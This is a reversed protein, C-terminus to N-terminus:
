SLQATTCPAISSALSGITVFEYNLAALKRLNEKFVTFSHSLLPHHLRSTALEVPHTATIVYDTTVKAVSDLLVDTKFSPNIMRLMKIEDSPSKIAVTSIPIELIRYCPNGALRYDSISPQYAGQLTVSWDRISRDFHYKPRPIASSDYKYGLEDVIRMTQNTHFGWGMRVGSLGFSRGKLPSRYLEESIIDENVCQIWQNAKLEYSHFHFAIEHGMSRLWNLDNHYQRFLYENAGFIKGMHDDLRLFWTTKVYDLEILIEKIRSFYTFEDIASQDTYDTMDVDFSIAIKKDVKM